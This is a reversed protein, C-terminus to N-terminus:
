GPPPLGSFAAPASAPTPRHLPRLFLSDVMIGCAAGIAYAIFNTPHFTHGLLFGTVPKARLADIWPAHYLKLWETASSVALAIAAAGLASTWPKLLLALLFFMLAWLVDGLDKAILHPFRGGGMRSGVGVAIVVLAVVAM